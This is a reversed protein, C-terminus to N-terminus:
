RNNQFIILTNRLCVDVETFELVFRVEIRIEVYVQKCSFFLHLLEPWPEFVLSVFSDDALLEVHFVEEIAFRVEVEVLKAIFNEFFSPLHNVLLTKNCFDFENSFFIRFSVFGVRPDKFTCFVTDHTKGLYVEYIVGYAKCCVWTEGNLEESAFNV